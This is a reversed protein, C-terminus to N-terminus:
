YMVAMVYLAQLSEMLDEWPIDAAYAFKRQYSRWLGQMGADSQIENIILMGDSKVLDYSGRTQCTTKFAVSFDIAEFAQSKEKQLAFLDYFDRMRTNATGRTLVTELKEALVTELNYALLTITREEFMLKFEYMIEHPTIVDGTSIDVKLPTVMSELTAQINARIGGYDTGEMIDLIGTITFAIGDDIPVNIIDELIDRATAVTLPLNKVTADIDMTSRVDIGVMASVLLGGKLIFNHSYKSLSLRELFREMIYNRIIIQAQASDGQSLNRVLAKLQRSTRIM